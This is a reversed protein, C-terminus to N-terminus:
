GQKTSTLGLFVWGSMVSFMNVPVYLILYFFFSLRSINGIRGKLPTYGCSIYLMHFSHMHVPKMTQVNGAFTVAVYSQGM